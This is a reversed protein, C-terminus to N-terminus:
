GRRPMWPPPPAEVRSLSSRVSGFRDSGGAWDRYGAEVESRTRAVLNWWMLIPESFPTGGLILLRARDSTALELEPRRSGLYVLQGPTVARGGLSIRGVTVVLAHEFRPALPVVTRGARLDLDVGLLDTDRRAPSATGCLEGVLVTAVGHRLDVRPLEAHHEFAPPGARTSSPQAVWLQVLHTTPRASGAAEEAHAIGYGATMLNLQGPRLPQETGLSDRHLMEGELLWTVTQLGMHPHPGIDPGTGEDFRTPGAHDVFCWAGVTRRGRTPLCRRVPISGVTARTSETVEFLGAPREIDDDVANSPEVGGSTV